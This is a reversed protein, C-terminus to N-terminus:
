VFCSIWALFSCIVLPPGHGKAGNELPVFLEREIAVVLEVLSGAVVFLQWVAAECPDDTGDLGPCLDDFDPLGILVRLAEAVLVRRQYGFEADGGGERTLAKSAVM